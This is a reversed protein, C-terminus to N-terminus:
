PSPDAPTDTPETSARPEPEDETIITGAPLHVTTKGDPLTATAAGTLTVKARKTFASLDLTLVGDDDPPSPDIPHPTQM